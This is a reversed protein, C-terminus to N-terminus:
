KNKRYERPTNGTEERFLKGFYSDSSFGCREADLGSERGGRNRVEKTAEFLNFWLRYLEARAEFEYGPPEDRMLEIMRITKDLMRIGEPTEPDFRLYSLKRCSSVPEVYKESYLNGYGGTIFDADFFFTYSVADDPIDMSQVTHIANSNLFVAAAWTNKHKLGTVWM